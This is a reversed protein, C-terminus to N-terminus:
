KAGGKMAKAAATIAAIIRNYTGCRCINGNMGRIIDERTPNPYEELLVVASMVMGPTCYGCQLAGAELFAAQVPHLTDGNALGEVTRVKKGAATGVATTCSRVPRGGVLVTCAGCRGEGCGYKAGTLDLDDHLVSLLTRDPDADLTRTSGNVHLEKVASMPYEESTCLCRPCPPTLGRGGALTDLAVRFPHSLPSQGRALSVIDVAAAWWVLSGTQVDERMLANVAIRGTLQSVRLDAPIPIFRVFEQIHRQYWDYTRPANNLESWDLFTDLVAIVAEDRVRGQMLKHYEEFAQEQEPGLNIQKGDLEVYWLQRTARYFPKPFQPM